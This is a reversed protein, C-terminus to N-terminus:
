VRVGYAPRTAIRRDDSRIVDPLIDELMRQLERPNMVDAGTINLDVKWHGGLGGTRHTPLVTEGGHAMILRPQGIPGPVVGGRGFEEIAVDGRTTTVATPADAKVTVTGDDGIGLLRQVWEIADRIRGIIGGILDGIFGVAGEIISEIRAWVRGAFDRIDEWNRIIQLGWGIPGMLFSVIRGLTTDLFGEIWGWVRGAVDKVTDWNRWLAVGIAILAAIGAVVLAVPASAGVVLAGLVKGVTIVIAILPKIIGILSGIGSVIPGLIMLVPGLAALLAIGGLIVQQIRPDLNKFWDILRGVAEAFRHILPIVTERIIPVLEEGLDILLGEMISRLEKLQYGLTDRTIEGMADVAGSSDRLDDTFEGLSDSGQSLLLNVGRLARQGFISALAANRQETSMNAMGSEFDALIDVASRMNGEADYVRVGLQELTAAGDDTTKTLDAIMANLTTGAMSGKIGSDALLGAMAAAEELSWGASAASPALYKMTEGLMEVNTNANTATAALIDTARTAETAEMGFATMMDSVIDSARGLDMQTAEAMRLIAPLGEIMASTEWGAMALYELGQAAQTASFSTTRGMERAIDQLSDLDSGTAGAIASVRAMQGSFDMATKVAAAGIGVIPATVKLSLSKGIKSMDKGISQMRKTVGEMAQSFEKTNAGLTVYLRSIEAVSLVGSRM